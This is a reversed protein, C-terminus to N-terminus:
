KKLTLEVIDTNGESDFWAGKLTENELTLEIRIPQTEMGLTLDFEFSLKGEKFVIERLPTEPIMGTADKFTGTYGTEGKDIVVTIEFRQDPSIAYGVWTGVVDTKKAKQAAAFGALVTLAFVAAAVLALSRKM